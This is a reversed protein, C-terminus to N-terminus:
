AKGGERHAPLVPPPYNIWVCEMMKRKSPGSGAKNDISYTHCYWGHEKAFDDYPPSHYGSLLFRGKIKSLVRLLERHQDENMEHPGYADKVTRTVHVYPPDLYFLTRPGDQERIVDLANHNLILVRQLREHAAPLGEIASLWASVHEQMGRRTRDRVPTLFGDGSAQRSQRNRILLALAREPPSVELDGITGLAWHFEDESVPTLQALRQLEQLGTPSKLVRHFTMLEGNIDNAVESIGEPDQAFLVHGAGFFPEVYHLWGSDDDDPKNPNRVRPPFLSLIEKTQYFKGGYSKLPSKVIARSM